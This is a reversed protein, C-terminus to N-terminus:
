ADERHISETAPKNLRAFDQDEVLGRRRAAQFTVAAEPFGLAKLLCADLLLQAKATVTHMESGSAAKRRLSQDWHTLYNRTDKVLRVFDDLEPKLRRMLDPFESALEKLRAAFTLENSWALKEKVWRKDERVLGATVRAIRASHVAPAVEQGPRTRRHFSELAQAIALFRSNDSLGPTHLAQRYLDHVPALVDKNSWYASFVQQSFTQIAEFDFLMDNVDPVSSSVRPQPPELITLETALQVNGGGGSTVARPTFASITEIYVPCALAFTLFNQIDGVLDRQNLWQMKKAFSVNLRSQQVLPIHTPVYTFGEEYSFHAELLFDDCRYLEIPAPLDFRYILTGDQIREKSFGSIGLWQHLHTFSLRVGTFAVEDPREFYTGLIATGPRLVSQSGVNEDRLGAWHAQVLQCDLLTIKMDLASFGLVLPTTIPGSASRDHAILQGNLELRLSDGPVYHLTGSISKEPASPLFWTGGITHPETMM